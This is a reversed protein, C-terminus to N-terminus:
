PVVEAALKKPFWDRTKRLLALVVAPALITTLVPMLGAQQNLIAALGLNIGGVVLVLSEAVMTLRRAWRRRRRLGRAGAFALVSGAGTIIVVPLLAGGQFANFLLAEILSLVTIGGQILVIAWVIDILERHRDM